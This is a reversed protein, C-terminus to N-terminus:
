DLQPTPVTNYFHVHESKTPPLLASENQLFQYDIESAKFFPM